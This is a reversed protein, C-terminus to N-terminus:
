EKSLKIESANKYKLHVKKNGMLFIDKGVGRVIYEEGQYVVKDGKKYALGRFLVTVRYLDKGKKQTHLSATMLIQGGFRQQLKKGLSKTFQNDALYFDLGNELKVAKATPIAHSAIQQRAYAVVDDSVDRLQLIAEFYLPHKGELSRVM